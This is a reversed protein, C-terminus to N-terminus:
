RCAERCAQLEAATRAGAACGHECLQPDPAAFLAPVVVFALAIAFVLLAFVMGRDYRPASM